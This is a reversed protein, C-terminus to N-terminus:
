QPRSEEVAKALASVTLKDHKSLWEILLELDQSDKDDSKLAKVHGLLERLKAVKM